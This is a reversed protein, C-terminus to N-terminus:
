PSRRPAAPTFAYRLYVAGSVAGLLACAFALYRAWSVGLIIAGLTVSQLATAAKGVYEVHHLRGGRLLLVAFGPLAVLERTCALGLLLPLDPQAPLGGQLRYHALLLLVVLATFVRDVTQDLRAGSASVQGLRRAFYGDFWDTLAALAFVALLTWRAHGRFLLWGFPATFLLRSLTIADPVSV